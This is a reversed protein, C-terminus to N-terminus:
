VEVGNGGWQGGEDGGGKWGRLGEWSDLGKGGDWGELGVEGGIDGM